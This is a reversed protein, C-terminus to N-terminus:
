SQLFPSWAPERVDGERSPLILRVRGDTSVMGLVGRGGSRTSYIIMKGNPAISPSQADGSRTLITYRGSAIDQVAINFQNNNGNLMTLTQGDASLSPSANYSGEFTIRKVDSSGPSVRYIQPGGGRSSTFYIFRDGPAWTPETDISDGSTVESVQKSGISMTFIKPNGTQTLVLALRRGDASWDPASNLGPFDSVLQRGGSALDQVYVTPRGQEFSVYALRKADPSWSPSMIPQNSKLLPKPNYGDMDSVELTYLSGRPSQQATVYAIKTSFIGRDGTLKQYVADSIHHALGRLQDGSVTFSDSLVVSNQWGPGSTKKDGASKDAYVNVLQYQVRYRGGGASQVSGVVMNDMNQKQWYSFDVQDASNPTQKMDGQSMLRFRGSNQLDANVVGAVNNPAQADTQGAFPVIAIPIAGQVGQTLQLDLVAQANVSFLLPLFFSFICLLKKLSRTM